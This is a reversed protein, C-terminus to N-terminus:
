RRSGREIMNSDSGIINDAVSAVIRRSGSDSDSGIINDAVSVVIRRSGSDICTAVFYGMTRKHGNHPGATVGIIGKHLSQMAIFM